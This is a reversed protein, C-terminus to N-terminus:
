LINWSLSELQHLDCSQYLEKIILIHRRWRSYQKKDNVVETGGHVRKFQDDLKSPKLNANSFVSLMQQRIWHSTPHFILIKPPPCILFPESGICTQQFLVSFAQLLVLSIISFVKGWKDTLSSWSASLDETNNRYFFFM